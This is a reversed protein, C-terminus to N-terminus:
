NAVDDISEQYIHVASMEALKALALGAIAEAALARVHWANVAFRDAAVVAAAKCSFGREVMERAESVARYTDLEAM